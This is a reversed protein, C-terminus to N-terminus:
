ALTAIQSKDGKETDKDSNEERLRRRVEIQFARKAVQL